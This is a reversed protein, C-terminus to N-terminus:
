MECLMRHSVFWSMCRCCVYMDVFTHGIIMNVKLYFSFEWLSRSPSNMTSGFLRYISDTM